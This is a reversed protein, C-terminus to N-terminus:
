KRLAAIREVVPPHSYNMFVFAPHPTLNSKNDASLKKLASILPEPDDTADRAYADAEFEHKRSLWNGGVSVINNVPQMLIAFLVLSVYVSLEKVSFADFLGRNNLLAGLLCFMIGSGVISIILGKVLHRKKYHGIEHALVAVLEPVTHNEVLTDFFVIRKTSGFGTFFANAKSSRKSGDMVSIDNLPFKCKEAMELIETKLEGEELPEFKNYLPMILTPALFVVAIMFACTALWGWFWAMPAKEFIWLLAILLPVGLVASLALSRFFDAAFLGPTTQNFGFKAEIGFTSYLSLPLTLIHMALYLIGVYMVGTSISGLGFSRVKADLWGFGGLWWFAFLIILMYISTGLSFVSRTRTYDRSKAYDEENIQDVFEAPPKEQLSRMNLLTVFFDIKWLIVFAATVALFWANVQLPAM